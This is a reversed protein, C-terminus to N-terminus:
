PRATHWVGKVGDGTNDGPKSDKIWTYLPQGKYAWQYKGDTRKIASFEGESKSSPTAFMPPWNVACKGACNSQGTKDKDFTYLTMGKADTLAAAGAIDATKIAKAMHHGAQAFGSTLVAIGIAFVTSRIIMQNGKRYNLEAAEDELCDHFVFL